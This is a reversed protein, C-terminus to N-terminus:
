RGVSKALSVLNTPDSRNAVLGSGKEWWEGQGGHHGGELATQALLVPIGTPARNDHCDGNDSSPITVATYFKCYDSPNSPGKKQDM